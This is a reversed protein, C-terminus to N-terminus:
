DKLLRAGPGTVALRDGSNVLGCRELSVCGCGICSTVQDRLMTLDRIRADLAQKWQRTLREWDAGTPASGDPLVSFADSIEALTLGVFQAAQVIAVRRLTAREFERQNSPNRQSFILGRSEYFRLASVSVGARKALEGISLTTDM